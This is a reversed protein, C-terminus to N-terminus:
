GISEGPDRRRTSGCESLSVSDRLVKDIRQTHAEDASNMLERHVSRLSMGLYVLQVGSDVMARQPVHAAEDRWRKMVSLPKYARPNPCVLRLNHDLLLTGFSASVRPNFWKARSSGLEALPERPNDPKRISYGSKLYLGKLIIEAGAGALLRAAVCYAWPLDENRGPFWEHSPLSPEIFLKPQVCASVVIWELGHAHHEKWDESWDSAMESERVDWEVWKPIERNAKGRRVEEWKELEKTFCTM